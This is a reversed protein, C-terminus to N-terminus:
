CPRAIRGAEASPRAFQALISEIAKVEVPKTLHFDFGAERSQRKDDESGWGTLAVLVVSSLSPESRLQRAVDYGSMGPLGIDLFIVEPLFRRAADLAELGSHATQTTHGGFQLVKALSVAGDINDDVVLVRCGVKFHQVKATEQPTEPETVGKHALAVPM